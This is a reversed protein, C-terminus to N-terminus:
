WPVQPEGSGKRLPIAGKDKTSVAQGAEPRMVGQPHAAARPPVRPPTPTNRLQSQPHPGLPLRRCQGSIPFAQAPAAGVATPGEERGLGKARPVPGTTIDPTGM